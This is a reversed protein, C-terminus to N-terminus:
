AAVLPWEGLPTQQVTRYTVPPLQNVPEWRTTEGWQPFGSTHHPMISSDGASVRTLPTVLPVLVSERPVPDGPDLVPAPLRPCRDLVGIQMRVM